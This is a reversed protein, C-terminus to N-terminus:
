SYWAYTAVKGEAFLPLFAEVRGDGDIDAVAPTGVTGTSTVLRHQAYTWNGAANSSPQLVDYVGADDGSVLISPKTDSPHMHFSVATGPAGRGPLYPRTCTWGTALRHKTWTGTRWDAPPAFALVSGKENNENTTTLIEKRGDGDLDVWEVNFYGAHEDADIIRSSVNAGGKCGHWSAATCWWLSLQKGSFFQAAVIQVRGDGDLDLQMFAVDPGPTPILVTETWSGGGSPELLVLEGAAHKWPLTPFYARAALVAPPGDGLLFEAHHYFYATKDTSLQIAPEDPCGAHTCGSVNHLKVHGTAKAPNPFFGGASLVGAGIGLGAAVRTPLMSAQNPWSVDMSLTHVTVTANPRLLEEASVFYIGDKSFPAFTTVLLAPGRIGPFVPAISAVAANPLAFESIRRWGPAAVSCALLSVVVMAEILGVAHRRSSIELLPDFYLELIYRAM